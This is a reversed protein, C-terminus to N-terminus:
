RVREKSAPRKFARRCASRTDRARFRALKEIVQDRLREGRQRSREAMRGLALLVEASKGAAYLARGCQLLRAEQVHADNFDGLARQLKKLAGLICALDSADYFAPTVDILYRLKKADIRIQHFHEASTQEDIADAARTIRRSLRWARRSVVSALPGAANRAEPESVIPGELFAKWDSLLRQYRDSDL